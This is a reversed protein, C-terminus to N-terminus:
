FVKQADSASESAGCSAFISMTVQPRSFASETVPQSRMPKPISEPHSQTPLALGTALRFM